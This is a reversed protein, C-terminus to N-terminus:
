LNKEGWWNKVILNGAKGLKRVKCTKHLVSKPVWIKDLHGDRFKGEVLVAKKTEGICTVKGVNFVADGPGEFAM